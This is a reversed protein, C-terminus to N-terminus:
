AKVIRINGNVTSLTIHDRGHGVTGTVHIIKRESGFGAIWGPTETRPLGFPEILRPLGDFHRTYSITADVTGDFDAPVHLVIDGGLARLSVARPAQAEALAVDIDGGATDARVAGSAAHISVEGGQTRIDVDRAVSGIRVDGGMTQVQLPGQASEVRIDGGMTRLTVEGEARGLHIDGGMTSLTSGDAVVDRDIDNAMQNITVPQDVAEAATRAVALCFVPLAVIIVLRRFHLAQM